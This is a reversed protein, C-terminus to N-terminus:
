PRNQRREGTTAYDGSKTLCAVCAGCSHQVPFTGLEILITRAIPAARSTSPTSATPAIRASRRSTRANQGWQPGTVVPVSTDPSRITTVARRVTLGVNGGSLGIVTLETSRRVTSFFDEHPPTRLAAGGM